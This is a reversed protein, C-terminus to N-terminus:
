ASHRHYSACVSRLAASRPIEQHRRQSQVFLQGDASHFTDQRIRFAASYNSRFKDVGKLRIAGPWSGTSGVLGIVDGSTVTQGVSVKRTSMHGYLSTKGGGHDIIICEGYGGYWQSLIVTGSNAALVNTGYGAAIDIGSHYKYTGYVPHIRWGFYSTLYHSAPAPWVWTGGVYEKDPNTMSQIKDNLAEAEALLEDEKAELEGKLDDLEKMDADLEAKKADLDAKETQLRDKIEQLEKEEKELTELVDMDNRYIRQIMDLNSIFESISNSGLLVDVFGVSGNKYMVRLREYLGDEREQMQQQKDAIEKETESIKTSAQVVEANLEDVKPQMEDIQSKVESLRQSVQDKENNVGNLEEQLDGKTEAYSIGSFAFTAVLVFILFTCIGRKKTM